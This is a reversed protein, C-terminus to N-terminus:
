HLILTKQFCCKEKIISSKLVDLKLIMVNCGRKVSLLYLSYQNIYPLLGLYRGSNFSRLTSLLYAHSQISSLNDCQCVFKLHWFVFTTFNCLDGSQVGCSSVRHKILLKLKIKRRELLVGIEHRWSLAYLILRPQM